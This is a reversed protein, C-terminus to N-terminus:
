AAQIRAGPVPGGPLVLGRLTGEFHNCLACPGDPLPTRVGNVGNMSGYALVNTGAVIKFSGAQTGAWDNTRLSLHLVAELVANRPFLGVLEDCPTTATLAGKRLGRNSDLAKRRPVWALSVAGHPSTSLGRGTKPLHLRV